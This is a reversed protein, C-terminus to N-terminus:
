PAPRPDPTDAALTRGALLREYAAITESVMREASFRSRARALGAEGLRRRWDEDALLSLIAAALAPGDGPPVLLGTVGDEVVEPIGGARTAVIPRAAAMADLLSTGLGETVSSMVFIDFAKLRALVDARFGDLLVHQDLKLHRIRQELEQRLEGEGLVVFRAHPVQRVVVAAADILHKQGKHPVLAAVNGVIPAGRPFWYEGHLDLPAVAAIRDVDVGEHVTAVRGAPVGDEVLMARIADSSALFADVQRYKWRSFSNTKLHFDVRRAAVLPPRRALGGIPLAAAAVAVGHPDHAHVIDPQLTRLAGALRWAAKLDVEGRPALALVEFDPELRRRLEGEPHAMVVVRHGRARLGRATILVQNQGGRWSRATDIQLTIM